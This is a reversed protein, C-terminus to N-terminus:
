RIPRAYELLRRNNIVLGFMAYWYVFEHCKMLPVRDRYVAREMQDCVDQCEFHKDCRDCDPGCDSCKEYHDDFIRALRWDKNYTPHNM